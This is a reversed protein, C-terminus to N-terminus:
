SVIRSLNIFTLIDVITPMKVNILKLLIITPMKVNIVKLWFGSITPMKVNILKLLVITSIKVNILNPLFPITPMKVNILKILVLQQCKLM